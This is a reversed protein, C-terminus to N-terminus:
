TKMTCGTVLWSFFPMFFHGSLGEGFPPGFPCLFIYSIGERACGSAHAPLPNSPYQM